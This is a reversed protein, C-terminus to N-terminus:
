ASGHAIMCKSHNPNERYESDCRDTRAHALGQRRTLRDRHTGGIASVKVSRDPEFIPAIAIPPHPGPLAGPEAGRGEHARDLARRTLHGVRKWTAVRKANTIQRRGRPARMRSM